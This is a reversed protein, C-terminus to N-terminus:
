PSLERSGADGARTLTAQAHRHPSTTAARLRRAARTCAEAGAGTDFDYFSFFTRPLTAPQHTDTDVFEFLLEVFTLHSNWVLSSDRPGLLNIVGFPANHGDADRKIGNNPDTRWARYETTNTIRLDFPRGTGAGYAGSYVHDVKNTGVNKIYIEHPTTAPDYLEECNGATACRGGLGGLNSRVLTASQLYQNVFSGPATCEDPGAEMLQGGQPAFWGSAALVVVTISM